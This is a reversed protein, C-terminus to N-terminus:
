KAVGPSHQSGPGLERLYGTEAGREDHTIHITTAPIVVPEGLPVEIHHIFEM